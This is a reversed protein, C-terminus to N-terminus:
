KKLKEEGLLLEVKGGQWISDDFQYVDTLLSLQFIPDLQIIECM